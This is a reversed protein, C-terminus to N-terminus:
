HIFYAHVTYLTLAFDRFLLSVNKLEDINLHSNFVGPIWEFLVFVSLHNLKILDKQCGNGDRYFSFIDLHTIFIQGPLLVRYESLRAM